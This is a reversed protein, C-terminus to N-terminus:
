QFRRQWRSDIGQASRADTSCPAERSGFQVSAVWGPLSLLGLGQARIPRPAENLRESQPRPGSWRVEPADRTTM